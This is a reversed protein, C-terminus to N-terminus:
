DVKLQGPGSGVRLPHTCAPILLEEGEEPEATPLTTQVGSNQKEDTMSDAIKSALLFGSVM